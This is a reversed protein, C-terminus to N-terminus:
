RGSEREEILVKIVSSDGPISVPASKWFELPLSKRGKRILGKKELDNLLGESTGQDSIGVPELRAVPKGYDTLLVPTGERVMKVVSSLHNKAYTISVSKM